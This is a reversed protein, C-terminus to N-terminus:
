GNSGPVERWTGGPEAPSVVLRRAACLTREVVWRRPLVVFTTQGPQKKVVEVVLHLTDKAWTVLKGAYASDVWALRIRRHDHRLLWLLPRAGDRDQVSAPTVVIALILGLVDVALHRKRGNVKKGADWGRSGRSVTDAARVSQSDIIAASPEVNRGAAARVKDRVADHLRQVVGNAAWRAFFGYVTRWPPFDGPLARWVVGNHDLYRIADVIARRDHKEPRGGPPGDSAAAPLLPQLIQWEADTTDSPYRRLRDVVAGAQSTAADSSVPYLSM